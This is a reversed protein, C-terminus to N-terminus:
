EKTFVDDPLAIEGPCARESCITCSTVYEFHLRNKDCAPLPSGIDATSSRRACSTWFSLARASRGPDGSLIPRIEPLGGVFDLKLQVELRCWRTLIRCHYLLGYAEANTERGSIRQMLRDYSNSDRNKM